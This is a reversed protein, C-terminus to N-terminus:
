RGGKLLKGCIRCSVQRMYTGGHVPKHCRCQSAERLAKGDEELHRKEAWEHAEMTIRSNGLFKVM